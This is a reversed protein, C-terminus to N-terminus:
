FLLVTGAVVLLWLLMTIIGFSIWKMRRSLYRKRELNFIIHCGCAEEFETREMIRTKEM